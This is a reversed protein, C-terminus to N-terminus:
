FFFFPTLFPDRGKLDWGGWATVEGLPAPAAAAPSTGCSHSGGRQKCSGSWFCQDTEAKLAWIGWRRLVPDKKSMKRGALEGPPPHAAVVSILASISPWKSDLGEGPLQLGEPNWFLEMLCIRGTCNNDLHPSLNRTSGVGGDEWFRRRDLAKQVVTPSVTPSHLLSSGLVGQCLLRVWQPVLVQQHLGSKAAILNLFCFTSTGANM